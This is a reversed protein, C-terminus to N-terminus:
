PNRRKGEERLWIQPVMVKRTREPIEKLTKQVFDKYNTEM